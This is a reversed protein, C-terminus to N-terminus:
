EDIVKVTFETGVAEMRGNPTSIFFPGHPSQLSATCEGHELFFQTEGNYMKLILMSNQNLELTSKDDLKLAFASGATSHFTDGLYIDSGPQLTQWVDSGEHRVLVTGELDGISIPVQATLPPAAPKGTGARGLIFGLFLGVALIIAAAVAAQRGISFTTIFTAPQPRYNSQEALKAAVSAGAQEAAMPTSFAQKISKQLMLCSDFQDRCSECETIHTKLEALQRESITGDILKEILIKYKGCTMM